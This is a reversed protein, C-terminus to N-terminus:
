WSKAMLQLVDVAHSPLGYGMEEDSDSDLPRPEAAAAPSPRAQGVAKARRRQLRQLSDTMAFTPFM